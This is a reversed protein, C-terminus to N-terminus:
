CVQLIASIILVLFCTLNMLSLYFILRQKQYFTFALGLISTIFALPILQTLDIKLEGQIADAFSIYTFGFGSASYETPYILYSFYNTSTSKHSTTKVESEVKTKGLNLNQERSCMTTIFPMFFALILLAKNIKILKMRLRQKLDV